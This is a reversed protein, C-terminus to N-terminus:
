AKEETEEATSNEEDESPKIANLFASLKNFTAGVGQMEGAKFAGRQCAVDIIQAINALDTITINTSAEASEATEETVPATQETTMEKEQQKNNAKTKRKNKTTSKM